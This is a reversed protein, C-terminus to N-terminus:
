NPSHLIKKHPTIIISVIRLSQMGEAEEIMEDTAYAQSSLLAEWQRNMQKIHRRGLAETMM